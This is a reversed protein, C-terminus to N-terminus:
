WDAFIMFKGVRLRMDVTLSKSDAQGKLAPPNGCVASNVKMQPVKPFILRVLGSRKYHVKPTWWSHPLFSAHYFSRKKGMDFCPFRRPMRKFLLSNM